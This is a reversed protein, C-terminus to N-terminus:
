LTALILNVIGFINHFNLYHWNQSAYTNYLIGHRLTPFSLNNLGTPALSFLTKFDLMKTFASSILAIHSYNSWFRVRWSVDFKLGYLFKGNSIYNLDLWTGALAPEQTVFSNINKSLSQM